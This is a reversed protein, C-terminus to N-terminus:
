SCLNETVKWQISVESNIKECMIIHKYKHVNVHMWVCWFLGNIYISVLHLQSQICLLLKNSIHM